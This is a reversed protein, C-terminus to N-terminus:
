MQVVVISFGLLLARFLLARWDVVALSLATSLAKLACSQPGSGSVSFSFQAGEHATLVSLAGGAGSSSPAPRPVSDRSSVPASCFVHLADPLPVHILLAVSPNNSSVDLLKRFKGQPWSQSNCGMFNVKERADQICCQLCKPRRMWFVEEFFYIIVARKMPAKM